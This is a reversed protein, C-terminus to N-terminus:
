TEIRTFLSPYDIVIGEPDVALDTEFNRFIGEYRYRENQVLCTYAQEAAAPVLSPVPINGRELHELRFRNRRAGNRVRGRTYTIRLVHPSIPDNGM